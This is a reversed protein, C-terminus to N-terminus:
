LSFFYSKVIRQQPIGFIQWEYSEIFQSLFSTLHEFSCQTNYQQTQSVNMNKSSVRSACSFFISATDVMESFLHDGQILPGETIFCQGMAVNKLMVSQGDNKWIDNSSTMIRRASLFPLLTRNSGQSLPYQILHHHRKIRKMKLNSQKSTHVVSFFFFFHQLDKLTDAEIVYFVLLHSRVTIKNSWGNFSRAMMFLTLLSNVQM